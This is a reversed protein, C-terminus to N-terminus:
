CVVSLLLRLSSRCWACRRTSIGTVTLRAVVYWEIHFWSSCPRDCGDACWRMAQLVAAGTAFLSGVVTCHVTVIIVAIHTLGSRLAIPERQEGPRQSLIYRRGCADARMDRFICLMHQVPLEITSTSIYSAALPRTHWVANCSCQPSIYARPTGLVLSRSHRSSPSFRCSRM